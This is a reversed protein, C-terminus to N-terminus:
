LFLELKNPGDGYNTNSSNIGPRVEHRPEVREGSEKNSTAVVRDHKIVTEESIPKDHSSFGLRVLKEAIRSVSM